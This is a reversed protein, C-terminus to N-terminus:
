SPVIDITQGQKYLLVRIQSSCVVFIIQVRIKIIDVYILLTHNLIKLVLLLESVLFHKREKNLNGWSQFFHRLYESQFYTPLGFHIVQFLLYYTLHLFLKLIQVYLWLINYLQQILINTLRYLIFYCQNLLLNLTSIRSNNDFQGIRVYLKFPDLFFIIVAIQSDKFFPLRFGFLKLIILYWLERKAFNIVNEQLKLFWFSPLIQDIAQFDHIQNYFWVILNIQSLTIEFVLAFLRAVYNSLYDIFLHHKIM